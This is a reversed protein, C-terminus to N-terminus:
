RAAPVAEPAPEDHEAGEPRRLAALRAHQTKKCYHFTQGSRDGSGYWTEMPNNRTGTMGHCYDCTYEVIEPVIVKVIAKQVVKRM